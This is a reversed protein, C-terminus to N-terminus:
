DGAPEEGENDQWDIDRIQTESLNLTSAADRTLKTGLMKSLTFDCGEFYSKRLDAGSLNTERFLVNEFISARLDSGSLDATSFNVDIFDNWCLNSQHLNTNKFSCKWIESKYFFTMPMNLNNLDKNELGIRFLKFGVLERDDYQPMDEPIKPDQTEDVIGSARLIAITEEFSKRPEPDKGPSVIEQDELDSHTKSRDGACGYLLGIVVTGLLGAFSKM